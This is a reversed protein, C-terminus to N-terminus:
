AARWERSNATAMLVGRGELYQCHEHFGIRRYCRVAVHNDQSVNLVITSIGRDLLEGAVASAAQTALGRARRSPHTFVNGIAAVGMAASVVHTGAVSILRGHERIGYFVGNELQREHFADPRDAHGATLAMIEGLDTPGMHQTRTMRVPRYDEAALSMRWMADERTSRLQGGLLGRHIPLLTYVYDGAPASRLLHLTELPDGHAFLVPPILGRYILVVAVRRALWDAREAEAPDLDALAYASWVRDTELIDRV